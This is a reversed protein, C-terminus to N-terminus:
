SYQWIYINTCVKEAPALKYKYLKIIKRMEHDKFMLGQNITFCTFVHM